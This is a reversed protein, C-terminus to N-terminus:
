KIQNLKTGCYPCLNFDRSIDKGCKPCLIPKLEYGCNPCLEFDPEVEEGCEPCELFEIQASKPEKSYDQEETSEQRTPKTYVKRSRMLKQLKQINSGDADVWYALAFGSIGLLIVYVALGKLESFDPVDVIGLSLTKMTDRLFDATRFLQYAVYFCLILNVFMFLVALERM